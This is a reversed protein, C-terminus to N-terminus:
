SPFVASPTGTRSPVPGLSDTLTAEQALKGLAKRNWTATQKGMGQCQGHSIFLGTPPIAKYNNRFPFINETVGAM